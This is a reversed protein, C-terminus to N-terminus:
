KENLEITRTSFGDVSIKETLSRFTFREVGLHCAGCNTPFAIRPVDFQVGDATPTEGEEEPAVEIPASAPGIAPGSPRGLQLWVNAEGGAVVPFTYSRAEGEAPRAVLEYTGGALAMGAPTMGGVSLLRTRVDARLEWLEFACEDLARQDTAEVLFRVRGPTDLTVPGLDLEQGPGLTFPGIEKWALRPSGIELLYTGPPVGALLHEEADPVATMWVGTGSDLRWLRVEVDTADTLAEGEPTRVSVRVSGQALDDATLELECPEGGPWLRDFVRVPAATWSGATRVLVRLPRNPCNPLAFRGEADTTTGDFWPDVAHAGQLEVLWGGLPAGNEDTLRGTLELGRDLWPEWTAEGGVGLTLESFALGHDGGGARLAYTGEDLGTLEFVGEDDARTTRHRGAAVLAGPVPRGEADRVVGRLTALPALPPSDHDDFLVLGRALRRSDLALSAYRARPVEWSPMALPLNKFHNMGPCRDDGRWAAFHGVGNEDSQFDPSDDLWAQSGGGMPVHVEFMMPSLEVWAVQESSARSYSVFLGTLGGGRLGFRVENKGQVVRMRRLGSWGHGGGQVALAVDMAASRGRWSVRFFGEADTRVARNLSHGAPGLFVQAGEIPRDDADVVHGELVYERGDAVFPTSLDELAESLERGVVRRAVGSEDAGDSTALPGVPAVDPGLGQPAAASREAPSASTSERPLAERLAVAGVLSLVTVAAAIKLKIGMALVGAGASSAAPLANAAPAATEGNQGSQGSQIPPLPVPFLPGTLFALGRALTKGDAEFEGALRSRLRELGRQLRSKITATPTRLREAIARPPLDEFYRLLIATQYPEELALVADTLRRLTQRREAALAASEVPEPRAAAREREARRREGRLGKLARTRVVSALWGSFRERTRPPRELATVWTDQLVDDAAHDDRVLSKALARLSGAHRQLLEPTLNVPREM